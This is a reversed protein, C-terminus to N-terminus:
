CSQRCFLPAAKRITFTEAPRVMPAVKIAFHVHVSDFRRPFVHRVDPIKGDTRRIRLRLGESRVSDAGSGPPWDSILVAPSAGIECSTLNRAALGNSIYSFWDGIIRGITKSVTM